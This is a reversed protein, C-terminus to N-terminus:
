NQSARTLEQLAFWVMLAYGTGLASEDIRFGSTHVAAGPCRNPEAVGINYFCGPIERCYYAFDEAWMAPPLTRVADAGLFRHADSRLRETLGPDNELAPYGRRIEVTCDAGLARAVGDSIERIRTLALDRWEENMARFTGSLLAQDPIINTAGDAIFRGFSLVTAQLPDANRSVIQQLAVVIQAATVVPDLNQHPKAGHGGRGKVTLFVDDVSAMFLGERFGATGAPLEPNVHQGIICSVGDLVGHRIMGVAGGPIKEEAPQFLCRVTGSFQGSIDKLVRAASLLSATHFDHGCAHMVGPNRSAYELGTEERIPLADMDARLAVTPGQGTGSIEAVIGHGDGEGTRHPIGWDHLLSSIYEATEKEQFSLEPNAHLHRRIRITDETYRSATDRINRPTISEM